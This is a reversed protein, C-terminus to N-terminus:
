QVSDGVGALYQSLHSDLESAALAIAEYRTKLKALEFLDHNERTEHCNMLARLMPWLEKQYAYSIFGACSSLEESQKGVSALKATIRSLRDADHSRFASIASGALKEGEAGLHILEKVNSGINRLKLNMAQIQEAAAPSISDFLAERVPIAKDRCLDVTDSLKMQLASGSLIGGETANIVQANTRSFEYSFWNAYDRMVRYTYVPEGHIDTTKLVTKGSFMIDEYELTAISKFRTINRFATEEWSHGTAHGRFEPFSLDQGVFVIPDAGCFRALDFALTAVSGGQQLLGKPRLNDEIWLSLPFYFNFFFVPGAFTSVTEPYVIPSAVLCTEPERIDKLHVFNEKQGDVAMVIDPKIGKSLLIRYATDVAIILHRGKVERLLHWNKDLSPGASVLFVPKGTFRGALEAVGGGAAMYPLNQFIHKQWTSLHKHVTTFNSVGVSLIGKLKESLTKYYDTCHRNIYANASRFDIGYNEYLRFLRSIPDHVADPPEGVFFETHPNQLLASFDHLGLALRFVVPDAECVLIKKEPSAYRVLELLHYGLGCGLIVLINDPNLSQFGGQSDIDSMIERVPDYRSHLFLERGETVIKLTPSGTRAPLTQYGPPIQLTYLRSALGPNRKALAQLNRELNM